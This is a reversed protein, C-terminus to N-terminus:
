GAYTMMLSSQVFKDKVSRKHSGLLACYFVHVHNVLCLLEVIQQVSFCKIYNIDRIKTKLLSIVYKCNFIRFIAAFILVIVACVCLFM